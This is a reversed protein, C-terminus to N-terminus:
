SPGTVLCRVREMMESVMDWAGDVVVGLRAYTSEGHGRLLELGLTAHSPDLEAHAEFYAAGLQGIPTAALTGYFYDGGTEVVLHMLALKGADDLVLMQYNLWGLIAELLTDHIPPVSNEKAFLEDHGFEGKLHELFVAQFAPDSCSGQRIFLLTQFNISFRKVCGLFINLKTRDALTGDRVIRFFPHKRFEVLRAQNHALLADFTTTHTSLNGRPAHPPQVARSRLPMM